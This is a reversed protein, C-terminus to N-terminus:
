RKGQYLWEMREKKEQCYVCRVRGLALRGKPIPDGCDVCHIGDFDTYDEEMSKRANRLACEHFRSEHISAVDLPDAPIEQYGLNEEDKM